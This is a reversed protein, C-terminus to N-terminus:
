EHNSYLLVTVNYTDLVKSQTQLIWKQEKYYKENLRCKVEKLIGWMKLQLACPFQCSVCQLVFTWISKYTHFKKLLDRSKDERTLFSATSGKQTKLQIRSVQLDITKKETPDMPSQHITAAPSCFYKRRAHFSSIEFCLIVQFSVLVFPCSSQWSLNTDYTLPFVLCSSRCFWISYREANAEWLGARAIAAPKGSWSWTQIVVSCNTQKWLFSNSSISQLSSELSNASKNCTQHLPQDRHLWRPLQLLACM